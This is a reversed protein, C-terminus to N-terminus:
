RLFVCVRGCGSGLAGLAVYMQKLSVTVKWAMFSPATLAVTGHTGAVTLPGAVLYQSSARGMAGMEKSACM